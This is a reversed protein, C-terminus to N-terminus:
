RKLIKKRFIKYAILRETGNLFITLLVSIAFVEGLICKVIFGLFGDININWVFYGFLLGLVVSVIVRIYTNFQQSVPIDYFKRIVNLVVIFFCIDFATFIIFATVVSCGFKLAIYVVIVSIVYYPLTSLNLFKIKNAASAIEGLPNTLSLFAGGISVLIVLYESYEPVEVLWLGLVYRINILLPIFLAYILVFSIKQSMIVLEIVRRYDDDAYNKIIQPNLAIQFNLVFGNVNQQVASAVGKAANVVPGFFANVLLNSIQTVVLPTYSVISWASYVLIEKFLPKNWVKKFASAEFQKKCYKYYLINVCANVLVGLLSYTILKDIPTYCLAIAIGLKLFVTIISLYAFAKMREHAIIMANYPVVMLSLASGVISMQYVWMAANFRDIPIVLKNYFYWLGITESVIVLLVAFIFHINLITCFVTNINGKEEKGIAFALFRSASSSLSGQIFTLLALLSGVVNYIGFDVIGLERLVIRSTYLTVVVTLFMRIYLFATNIAITKNSSFKSEM